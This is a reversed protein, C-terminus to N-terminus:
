FVRKLFTKVGLEKRLRKERKGTWKSIQEVYKEKLEQLNKAEAKTLEFKIFNTSLNNIPDVMSNKIQSNLKLKRFNEVMKILELKAPMKQICGLYESGFILLNEDTSLEEKFKVISIYPVHTEECALYTALLHTSNKTIDKLKFDSQTLDFGTLKSEPMLLALSIQKIRDKAQTGNSREFIAYTM